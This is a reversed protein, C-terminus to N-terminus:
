RVRTYRTTCFEVWEGDAKQMTGHLIRHDADVLEIVDAYNATQTEDEWSQGTSNLTLIKGTADLEGEYVWQNHMMSGVWSGVFKDKAPDFGVTMRMLGAPGDPEAAEGEAIIWLEGLARVAETGASKFEGAGGEFTWHGVLQQLWKHQDTPPPIEM